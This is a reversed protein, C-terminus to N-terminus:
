MWNKRDAEAAQKTLWEGQCIWRGTAGSLIEVIWYKGEQRVRSIEYVQTM